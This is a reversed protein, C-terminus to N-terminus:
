SGSSTSSSKAANAAWAARVAAGAALVAVVALYTKNKPSLGDYWGRLGGGAPAAPGKAPAGPGKAAKERLNEDVLSMPGPIAAGEASTVLLDDVKWGDAQVVRFYGDVRVRRGAEPVLLSGRFGVHKTAPNPGDVEQTLEFQDNPDDLPSHAFTDDVFARFRPTVYPSMEAPTKGAVVRECVEAATPSRAWEYVGYGIVAVSVLTGLAIGGLGVAVARRDAASQASAPPTVAPAPANPPVSAAPDAVPGFGPMRLLPLWENGGVVCAPTDWTAIGDALRAHVDDATFPGSPTAGAILWYRPTPTPDDSM